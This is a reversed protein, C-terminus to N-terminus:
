LDAPLRQPLVITVTTGKGVQSDIDIRGGMLRLLDFTIPMGLGTGNIIRSENEHFRAYEDFIAARQAETMGRGTDRISVILDTTSLSESDTACVTLTVAGTNTYKFANSLINTLMQKIRLEDGILHEPLSKDVTVFFDLEKDGVYATNLQVVDRIMGALEYKEEALTMKGAEIKSLDLIDNVIKLLNSASIYIRAFADETESPLDSKLLEMESIGLIASLPTRLEHSMRALFKSKARNNGEAVMMQKVSEKQKVFHIAVLLVIAAFVVTLLIGGVAMLHLRAIYDAIRYIYVFSAVFALAIFSFAVVIAGLNKRSM